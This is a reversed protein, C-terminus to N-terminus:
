HRAKWPCRVSRGPLSLPPEPEPAGGTIDVTHAGTQRSSCPMCGSGRDMNEQIRDSRMLM